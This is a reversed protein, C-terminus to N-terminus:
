PTSGTDVSETAQPKVIATYNKGILQKLELEDIVFGAGVMTLVLALISAVLLTVLRRVSRKLRLVQEEATLARKRPAAKRSTEESRRPLQIAVGQRVPYKDMEELCTPCFAQDEGIERGCKMCNM